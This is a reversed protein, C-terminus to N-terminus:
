SAAEPFVKVLLSEAAALGADDIGHGLGPRYLAEVAVGQARLASEAERSGSAPVVEDAEGHVLLVPPAAGLSAPLPYALRGSFALLAAPAPSRRLGCALTMMAGQSFGMLALKEGPLGHRALEADLFGDLVPLVAGVAAIIRAPTRDQV